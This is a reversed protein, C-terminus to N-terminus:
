QCGSFVSQQRVIASFVSRQGVIALHLGVVDDDDACSGDAEGERSLKTEGAETDEHDLLALGDGFGRIGRPAHDGGAIRVDRFAELWQYRGARSHIRLEDTLDLKFRVLGNVEAASASDGPEALVFLRSAFGGTAQGDSFQGADLRQEARAFSCPKQGLAADIRACEAARQELRCLVSADIEYGSRGDTFHEDGIAVGCSHRSRVANITGGDDDVAGPCPRGLDGGDLNGNAGDFPLHNTENWWRVRWM